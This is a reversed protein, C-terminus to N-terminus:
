GKYQKRTIIKQQQREIILQAIGQAHQTYPTNALLERVKKESVDIRYLVNWLKELNYDILYQVEVTLRQLLAEYATEDSPLAFYQALAQSLEETHQRDKEM